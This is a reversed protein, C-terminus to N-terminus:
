GNNETLRMVLKLFLQEHYFQSSVDLVHRTTVEASTVFPSATGHDKSNRSRQILAFCIPVVHRFLEVKAAVGSGRTLRWSEVWEIPVDDVLDQIRVKEVPESENTGHIVHKLYSAAASLGVDFETLDALENAM